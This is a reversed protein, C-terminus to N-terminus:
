SMVLGVLVGPVVGLVFGAAARWLTAAVHPLLTGDLILTVFSVAVDSPTPIFRRDGIGIQLLFEWLALLGIPSLLYLLRERARASKSMVGGGGRAVAHSGGRPGEVGRAEDGRLPRLRLPRRCGPSARFAGRHGRQHPRAPRDHYRGATRADPGRRDLPHHLRGDQPEGGLHPGARGSPDAPEARRAGRVARGHAGSGAG